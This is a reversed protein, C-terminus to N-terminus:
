PCTFADPSSCGIASGTKQSQHHGNRCRILLSLVSNHRMNELAKSNISFPAL